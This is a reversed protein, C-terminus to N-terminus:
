EESYTKNIIQTKVDDFEERRLSDMYYMFGRVNYHRGLREEKSRFDTESKNSKGINCAECLIQLNNFELSLEPYKSRPKIHDVHLPSKSSGAGCCMCKAPYIDLVKYRIERWAETTYFSKIAKKLKRNRKTKNARIM